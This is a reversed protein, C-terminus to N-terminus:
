HGNENKEWHLRSKQSWGSFRLDCIIESEIFIWVFVFFSKSSDYYLRNSLLAGPPQGKLRTRTHVRLSNTQSICEYRCWFWGKRNWHPGMYECVQLKSFPLLTPSNPANNAVLEGPATCPAEPKDKAGASLRKRCPSKGTYLTYMCVYPWLSVIRPGIPTGIIISSSLHRPDFSAYMQNMTQM